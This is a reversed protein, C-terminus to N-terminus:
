GTAPAARDFTEAAAQVFSEFYGARPPLDAGRDRSEMYPLGSQSRVYLPGGEACPLVM